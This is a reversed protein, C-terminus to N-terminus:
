NQIKKIEAQITDKIASNNAMIDGVKEEGIYVNGKVTVPKNNANFLAELGKAGGMMNGSSVANVQNKISSISTLLPILEDIVSDTNVGTRPDYLVGIKNRSFLLNDLEEAWFAVQKIADLAMVLLGVMPLTRMAFFKLGGLKDITRYLVMAGSSTLLLWSYNDGLASTISKLVNGMSILPPTIYKVGDAILRFLSGMITGLSEWLPKLDVISEAMTNFLETLGSAFGSKFVIDAAEQISFMFRNMAVRNSLLAKDLGGNARAAESMNKAFHPLVKESILGGKQQLDMMSKVTGDLTLGADQASKAMIQIANPM